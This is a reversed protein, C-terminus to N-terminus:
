IRVTRLVAGSRLLPQLMTDIQRYVKQLGERDSYKVSKKLPGVGKSEEIIVRSNDEISWLSGALAIVALEITARIVASPVFGGADPFSLAQTAVLKEALFRPGYKIEIYETALRLSAEKVAETSSAASWTPFALARAATYADADAVSVYSEANALGTADEVILAM